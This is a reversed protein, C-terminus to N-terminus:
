IIFKLNHYPCLLFFICKKFESFSTYTTKKFSTFPRGVDLNIRKVCFIRKTKIGTAAAAEAAVVAAVAAAVAAAAEAGLNEFEQIPHSFFSNGGYCSTLQPLHEVFLSIFFFISHLSWHILYSFDVSMVIWSLETPQLVAMPPNIKHVWSIGKEGQGGVNNM